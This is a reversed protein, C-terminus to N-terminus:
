QREEARLMPATSSRIPIYNRHFSDGSESLMMGGGRSDRQENRGATIVDYNVRFLDFRDSKTIRRNNSCHDKKERDEDRQVTRPRQKRKRKGDTNGYSPEGRRFNM